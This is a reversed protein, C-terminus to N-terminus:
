RRRRTLGAVSILALCLISSPEPVATAGVRLSQGESAFFGNSYTIDFEDQNAANPEFSVEFYGVNGSGAANFGIFVPEGDDLELTDTTGFNQGLTLEDMAQVEGISSIPSQVIITEGQADNLQSLAAVSGLQDFIVDNNVIDGFLFTISSASNGNRSFTVPVPAQAVAEQNILASAAIFCLTFVIRTAHRSSIFLQTM